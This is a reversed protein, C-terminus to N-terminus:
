YPQRGQRDSKTPATDTATQSRPCLEGEHLQVATSCILLRDIGDYSFGRTNNRADTATTKRRSRRLSDAIQLRAPQNHHHCLQVKADYGYKTLARGDQLRINDFWVTGVNNGRFMVYLDVSKIPQRRCSRRPPVNGTTPALASNQKSSASPATQYYVNAWLSYDPNAGNSTSNKVGQAKSM